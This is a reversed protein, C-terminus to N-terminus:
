SVFEFQEPPCVRLVGALEYGIHQTQGEVQLVLPGKFPARQVLEFRTGPKLCLTNLYQLKEADHTHVRSVIYEGEPAETLPLDNIKPMVGDATPIPEGHPCRRPYNAMAEMRSVVRDSVNAGLEDAAEHVEHWGFHMVDTLFREVLRHKRISMLAEREGAPTLKIGHYPEHDLMGVEKLRQVMRTVAPPSVQLVEALASTSVYPNDPQYHALRYTEALYDQMAPSVTM